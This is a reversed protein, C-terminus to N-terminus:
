HSKKTRLTSIGLSLIIITGSAIEQLYPNVGLINLVNSILGILLVGFFTGIINGRGGNIPVGGIVVAGMAQLEYGVGTSPLASGVRSLLLIAAMGVFFGNMAFFLLKNKTVDIGALFAAKENCGIAFLRRGLQTYKLIYNVLFYGIISIIFLLPIFGFIRTASLFDFQGYVTRIVGKTVFLALGTFISTTALSIIFSPSKFIISLIGNLTTCTMAILICVISAIFSNVGNNILIAMVCASLGIVAGVSIDFNGSIILITAGAAVLGLVSIQELINMLNNIRVFKPNIITTIISISIIVLLLLVWQSNKLKNWNTNLSDREM